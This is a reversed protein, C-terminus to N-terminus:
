PEEYLLVGRNAARTIFVASEPLDLNRRLRALRAAPDKESLQAFGYLTPGWSSQGVGVFGTARMEALIEAAHPASYIGGQAPAFCAGLRAQLDSLSDGFSALDREIVAPLVERFVLRCLSDSLEPGIPPLRAFAEAEDPGHLGCSGPPQVILISWEVPFPVRALLPPLANPEERGGHIIFGGHYFGHLGIGSRSGRGTLRALEALSPEPWGSLKALAYTVALSLQTGVGLGVHEAPTSHVDILAPTLNVGATRAHRQLQHRLVKVRANLRGLVTWYGARVSLELGPEEIMLGVGGLQHTGEHNWSLLGFHLRSGTRIRYCTGSM